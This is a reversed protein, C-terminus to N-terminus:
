EAAYHSQTHVGAGIQALDDPGANLGNVAALCLRGTRQAQRLPLVQPENDQWLGTLFMRGAMALSNTTMM